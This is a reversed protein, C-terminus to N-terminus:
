VDFNATTEDVPLSKVVGQDRSFARKGDDTESVVVRFFSASRPTVTLADPSPKVM